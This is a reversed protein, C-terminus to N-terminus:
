RTETEVMQNRLRSGPFGLGNWVANESDEQSAASNSPVHLGSVRSRSSRAAANKTEQMEQKVQEVLPKMSEQVLSVIESATLNPSDSDSRQPLFTKDDFGMLSLAKDPDDGAMEQVANNYADVRSQGAQINAAVKRVLDVNMAIQLAGDNQDQVNKTDPQNNSTNDSDDSTDDTNDSSKKNNRVENLLEALQTQTAALSEEFKGLREETDKTMARNQTDPTVNQSNATNQNNDTGGDGLNYSEDKGGGMGLAAVLTQLLTLKQSEVSTTDLGSGGDTNPVRSNATESPNEDESARFSDNNLERRMRANDDSERKVLQFTASGVKPRDCVTIEDIRIQNLYRYMGNFEPHTDDKWDLVAGGLSFGKYTRDQIKVWCEEAAESIYVGIWLGYDDVKLVTATGVADYRHMERINSWPKYDAIANVVAEKTMIHGDADPEGFVTAYGFVMREERNIDKLPAWVTFDSSNGTAKSIEFLSQPSNPITVTSIELLGAEDLVFKQDRVGNEDETGPLDEFHHSIMTGAWSFARMRKSQIDDWTEDDDVRARTFLGTDDVKLELVLGIPKDPNHNRLLVPNTMFLDITEKPFATSAIERGDRMPENFVSAYGEIERKQDNIGCIIFKSDTYQIHTNSFLELNHGLQFREIEEAIATAQETTEAFEKAVEQPTKGKHRKKFQTTCIKFASDESKGQKKLAEVCRTFEAPMKSVKRPAIILGM